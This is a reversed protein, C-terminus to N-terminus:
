KRAYEFPDSFFQKPPLRKSLLTDHLARVMPPPGAAYVDFGSFDDYDAAVADHVLGARGHWHDASDPQSLVPIYDFQPYQQLWHRPLADLYLDRLARAGWYLRLPRRVGASFAHELIAKIPAFGTGGAVLLIPRDSDRLYFQGFPAEIQLLSKERIGDFLQGSFAGGDVHRVHLEICQGPRPSNAISFSRRRGDSLLFDLYQGALYQLRQTAPLKLYLRVVDHALAEVSDVKVRLKRVPIDTTVRVEQAEVTL